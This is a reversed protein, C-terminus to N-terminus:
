NELMFQIIKKTDEPEYAVLEVEPISKDSFIKAIAVYQCIKSKLNIRDGDGTVLEVRGTCNDIVEFFKDVNTINQVKMNGGKTDDEM